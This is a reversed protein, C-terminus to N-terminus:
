GSLPESIDAQAGDATRRGGRSAQRRDKGSRRDWSVFIGAAIAVVLLVQFVLVLQMRAGKEKGGRAFALCSAHWRGIVPSRLLKAAKRARARHLARRAHM